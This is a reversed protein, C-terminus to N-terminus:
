VLIIKFKGPKENKPCLRGSAFLENQLRIFKPLRISKEFAPGSVVLKKEGFTVELPGQVGGLDVKHKKKKVVKGNKNRKVFKVFGKKGPGTLLHTFLLRILQIISLMFFVCLFRFLCM